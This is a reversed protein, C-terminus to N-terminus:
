LRMIYLNSIDSTSNNVMQVEHGHGQPVALLLFVTVAIIKGAHEALRKHVKALAEWVAKV